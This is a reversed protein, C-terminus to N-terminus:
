PLRLSVVAPGAMEETSAARTVCTCLQGGAEQQRRSLFVDRHDLRGEVSEVALRCLGCEGKRCDYMLDAGAASLAELMTTERGVRAEIGLEPVRVLFEEPEFWGSNGFTEFRLNTPPLARAEWERRVGDMLRIPGCMYLETTATIREVLGSIELPTGEDDVHVELRDGHLAALEEVYAMQGRTRGVYVFRYDAGLTALVRASEVMATVGIGGALLLYAPAGVRLPFHQLPQTVEVEDGVGLAHMYASGGRSDPVRLVTITVTGAVPDSDVVSYSRLDTRDAIPVRVDLHTGPAARRHGPLELTIRRATPTVDVAERVRTSRWVARGDTTM